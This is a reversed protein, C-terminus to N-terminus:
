ATRAPALRVRRYPTRDPYKLLTIDVEAGADGVVESGYWAEGPLLTIARRRPRSGRVTVRLEYRAPRDEYSRVGVSVSATPAGESRLAWLQTFAHTAANRQSWAALVFATAVTAATVLLMPLYILPPRRWPYAAPARHRAGRRKLLVGAVQGSFAITALAGAWARTTLGLDTAHLAFGAVGASAISVAPVLLLHEIREVHARATVARMIGLGPLVLALALGAAVRIPHPGVAVGAVASALGAALVADNNSVAARFGDSTM